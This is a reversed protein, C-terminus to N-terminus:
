SQISKFDKKVARHDLFEVTISALGDRWVMKTTTPGIGLIKHSTTKAYTAPGLIMEVESPKMGTKVAEFRERTLLPAFQAAPATTTPPTTIAPGPVAAPDGKSSVSLMAALTLAAFIAITKTTM